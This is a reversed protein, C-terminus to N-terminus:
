DNHLVPDVYTTIDEAWMLNAYVLDERSLSLGVVAINATIVWRCGSVREFFKIKEKDSKRNPYFTLDIKTKESM